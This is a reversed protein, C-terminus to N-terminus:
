EPKSYYQEMDTRWDTVIGYWVEDVHENERIETVLRNIENISPEFGIAYIDYTGLSRTVHWFSMDSIEEYAAESAGAEDTTRVFIRVIEWQIEEPDILYFVMTADILKQVRYRIGEGSMDYGAEALKNAIESYPARPDIALIRLIEGDIEDFNKYVQDSM